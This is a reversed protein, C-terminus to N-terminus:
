SAMPLKCVQLSSSRPTVLRTNLVSLRGYNQLGRELDELPQYWSSLAMQCATLQLLLVLLSSVALRGPATPLSMISFKM